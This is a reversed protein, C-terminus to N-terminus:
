DQRASLTWPFTASSACSAMADKKFIFHNKTDIEKYNGLLQAFGSYNSCPRILYDFKTMFFFDRVVNDRYSSGEKQYDLTINDSGLFKRISGAIRSSRSADTFIHVHIRQNPLLERLRLLQEAYFNIPKFTAPAAQISAATDYDGGTRVHMAVTIMDSPLSPLELEQRPALLSKLQLWFDEPMQGLIKKPFTPVILCLYERKEGLGDHKEIFQRLEEETHVQIVGCFRLRLNEPLHEEATHIRLQRLYKSSTRLLFQIGYKYSLAKARAYQNLNAGMRGSFPANAIFIRGVGSSPMVLLALICLRLLELNYLRSLPLHQM